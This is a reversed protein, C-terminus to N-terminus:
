RAECGTVFLTQGPRIGARVYAEAFACSRHTVTGEECARAGTAPDAAATCISFFLTYLTM